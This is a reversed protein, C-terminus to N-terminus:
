LKTHLKRSFRSCKLDVGVLVSILVEEVLDAYKSCHDIREGVRNLRTMRWM